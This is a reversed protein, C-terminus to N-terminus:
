KEVRTATILVPRFLEMQNLKVYAQFNHKAM